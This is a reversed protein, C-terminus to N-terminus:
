TRVAVLWFEKRLKLANKALGGVLNFPALVFDAIRELHSARKRLLHPHVKGVRYGTQELLRGLTAPTYYVFHENGGQCDPRYFRSKTPNRQVKGYEAHPVAIFLAGGPQLVRHAERLALRPNPTHELVHKMVVVSFAGETFPMHELDGMEAKLGQKRCAEIAYPALDTGVCELGLDRAARLTYGLSCGIDLLPGPKTHNLADLIQKRSKRIRRGTRKDYNHAHKSDGSHFYKSDYIDESETGIRTSRKYILGCDCSVWTFEPFAAYQSAQPSDCLPCRKNIITQSGSDQSIQIQDPPLM